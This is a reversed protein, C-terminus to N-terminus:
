LVLGVESGTWGIFFSDYRDRPRRQSEKIGVSSRIGKTVGGELCDRQRGQAGAPTKSEGARIPDTTEPALTAAM